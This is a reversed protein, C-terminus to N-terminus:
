PFMSLIEEPSRLGLALATILFCAAFLWGLALMWWYFRWFLYYLAFIVFFSAVIGIIFMPLNDLYGGTAAFFIIAIGWLAMSALIIFLAPRPVQNAKKEIIKEVVVSAGGGQGHAAQAKIRADRNDLKRLLEKAVRNNPVEELLIRAKSYNGIRIHGKALRIIEQENM